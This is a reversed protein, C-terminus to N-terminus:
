NVFLQTLMQWFEPFNVALGGAVLFTIGGGVTARGSAAANLVLIGRVIAILGVFQILRIIATVLGSAGALVGRTQEVGPFSLIAQPSERTTAGFLSGLIVGVTAPFALLAVGSVFTAIPEAWSGSGAGLESRRGARRLAQIILLVGMIYCLAALLHEFADLTAALSRIAEPLRSM